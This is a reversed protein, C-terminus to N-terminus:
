KTAVLKSSFLLTALAVRGRRITKIRILAQTQASYFVLFEVVICSQQWRTSKKTNLEIVLAWHHFFSKKFPHSMNPDRTEFNSEIEVNNKFIM